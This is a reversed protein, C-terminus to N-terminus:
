EAAGTEFRRLLEPLEAAVFAAFDAGQSGVFDIRAKAIRAVPKGSATCVEKPPEAPARSRGALGDYLLKFRGDSDAAKFRDSAIVESARKEARSERLREALALWRPRGAKPAPGIALALPRPVAEAVQLLRA